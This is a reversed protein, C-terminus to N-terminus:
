VLIGKSVNAHLLMSVSCNEKGEDKRCIIVVCVHVLEELSCAQALIGQKPAPNHIELSVTIDCGQSGNNFIRKVFNCKMLCNEPLIRMFYKGHLHLFYTKM